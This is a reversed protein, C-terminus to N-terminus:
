CKENPLRKLKSFKVAFKVFHEKFQISVRFAENKGYVRGMVLKYRLCSEEYIGQSCL